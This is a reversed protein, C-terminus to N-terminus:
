GVQALADAVGAEAKDCNVHALKLPLRVNERVSAWPMLAREQFVFGIGRGQSSVRLRGPAPASLGATLRLATSKGCGCAGLLSGFESRAVDLDSPDLARVGNDYVKAVCSLSAAVAADPDYVHGRGRM